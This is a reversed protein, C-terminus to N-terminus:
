PEGAIQTLKEFVWGCAAEDPVDVPIYFRKEVHGARITAYRYNFIKYASPPSLEATYFALSVKEVARYTMGCFRVKRCDDPGGLVLIQDDKFTFGAQELQQKTM